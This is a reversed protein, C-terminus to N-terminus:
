DEVDLTIDDRHTTIILAATCMALDPRVPDSGWSYLSNVAAHSLETGCKAELLAVAKQLTDLADAECEARSDITVTTHDVKGIGSSAADSNGGVSQVLLCPLNYRAPLPACYATFAKALIDRILEEVDKSKSVTVEM